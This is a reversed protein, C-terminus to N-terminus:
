FIRKAPVQSEENEKSIELAIGKESEADGHNRGRKWDGSEREKGQPL